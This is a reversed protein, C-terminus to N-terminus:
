SRFRPEFLSQRWSDVTVAANSALRCTGWATPPSLLPAEDEEADQFHDTGEDHEGCGSPPLLNLDLKLIASEPLFKKSV